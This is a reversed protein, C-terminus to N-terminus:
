KKNNQHNEIIEEVNKYNSNKGWIWIPEAFVGSQDSKSRIRKQMKYGICGLYSAGDLDAFFKNMPDCIKNVQHGSYVDGINIAMIGNDELKAWYKVITKFLFNELWIDIKKYRKFSQSDDHNYREINFYPPSTFAFDFMKDLNEIDEAPSNIMEISKGQNFAQIQRQYGEFLKKNPDIGTYSITGESAMFGALRDGWGSSFDLVNKANFLDYMCKASSPRFQAAIYKRMSICSRFTDPSVEKQKLSFLAGLMSKRFKYSDWTRVPSPSNISDCEMRAKFNFYNSSKLGSLSSSIHYDSYEAEYPYRHFFEGEKLLKSTDENKLKNFDSIAEELTNNKIPFLLDNNEVGDNIWTILEDKSYREKLDSWTSEDIFIENNVIYDKIDPIELTNSISM